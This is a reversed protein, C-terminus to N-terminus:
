AAKRAAFKYVVVAAAGVALFVLGTKIYGPM